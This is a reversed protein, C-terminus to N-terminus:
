VNRSERPPRLLSGLNPSSWSLLLTHFVLTVAESNSANRRMYAFLREQLCAACRDPRFFSSLHLRAALVRGPAALLCQVPSPKRGEMEVDDVATSVIVGHGRPGLLHRYCRPLSARLTRAENGKQGAKTRRSSQLRPESCHFGTSEARRTLLCHTPPKM